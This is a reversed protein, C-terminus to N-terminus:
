TIVFRMLYIYLSGRQLFPAAKYYIVLQVIIAM